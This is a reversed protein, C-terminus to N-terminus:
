RIKNGYASKVARVAYEMAEEDDPWFKYLCHTQTSEQCEFREEPDHFGKVAYMTLKGPDQGGINLRVSGFQRTRGNPLNAYLNYANSSECKFYEEPRLGLRSVFEEARRRQEGDM